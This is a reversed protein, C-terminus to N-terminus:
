PGSYILFDLLETFGNDDIGYITVSSGVDGTYVILDMKNNGTIDFVGIKASLYSPHVYSSYRKSINNKNGNYDVTMILQYLACDGDFDTIDLEETKWSITDTIGNGDIDVKICNENIQPIRPLPDWECSIGIFPESIYDLDHFDAWVFNNSDINLTSFEVSKCTITNMKNELDYTKVVDGTMILDSEIIEEVPELEDIQKGNYIFNDVTLVKGGKVGGIVLGLNENQNREFFVIPSINNGIQYDPKIASHNPYGSHDRNICETSFLIASILLYILINM